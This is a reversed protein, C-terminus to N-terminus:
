SGPHNSIHEDLRATLDDVKAETRAATEATENVKDKISHGSNPSLEVVADSIKVIRRNIRWAGAVIRAGGLVAAISGGGVAVVTVPDM